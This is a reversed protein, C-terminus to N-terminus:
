RGAGAAALRVECYRMWLLDGQAELRRLASMVAVRKAYFGDPIGPVRDPMSGMVTGVVWVIKRRHHGCASLLSADISKRRRRRAKLVPVTRKLAIPM